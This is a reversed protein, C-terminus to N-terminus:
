QYRLRYDDIIKKIIKKNEKRIKLIEKIYKDYIIKYTQILFFLLNIIVFITKYLSLIFSLSITLYLIAQSLSFELNM